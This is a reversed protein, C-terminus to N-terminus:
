CIDMGRWYCWQNQIADQITRASSQPDSIHNVPPFQVHGKGQLHTGYLQTTKCTITNIDVLLIIRVIRSISLLM